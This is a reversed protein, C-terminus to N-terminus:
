NKVEFGISVEATAAATLNITFSGSTPVYNKISATADNTRLGIEIISNATVLSNTVIVTTGGAAINVTGAPKNITQNGTTGAATITADFALKGSRGVSLATSSISSSFEAINGTASAGNNRLIVGTVADNTSSRGISVAAGNTLNVTSAGTGNDQFINGIVINPVLLGPATIYIFTSLAGGSITRGNGFSIGNTSATSNANFNILSTGISNAGATQPFTIRKPALTDASLTGTSTPSISFMANGTGTKTTLAALLNASSPTALWTGIGTGLGSIGTSVPLSTGNTLNISAPTGYANSGTYTKNGAVSQTGYINLFHATDVGTMAGTSSNYSLSTGTASIAARATDYLSGFTNYGTLYKNTTNPFSITSGGGSILSPLGTKITGNTSDILLIKFGSLSNTKQPYQTTIGALTISDAAIQLFNNADLSRNVSLNTLSPSITFSPGAGFNNYSSMLSSTGQVLITGRIGSTAGEFQLANGGTQRIIHLSSLTSGGPTNLVQEWTPTGGAAILQKKMRKDTSDWVLAYQQGTTTAVNEMLVPLGRTRFAFVTTGQQSIINPNPDFMFLSDNSNGTTLNIKPAVQLFSYSKGSLGAFNVASNSNGFLTIGASKPLSNVVHAPSIDLGNTHEFFANATPGNFYLSSQIDTEKLLSIYGGTGAIKISNLGSTGIFQDANNTTGLFSIKPPVVNNGGVLFANSSISPLSITRTSGVITVFGVQIGGTPIDRFVARATDPIGVLTDLDGGATIYIVDYRTYGAAATDINFQTGDEIFGAAGGSVYNVNGINLVAGSLYFSDVSVLGDTLPASELFGYANLTDHSKHLHNGLIYTPAVSDVNIKKNVGGDDIALFKGAGNTALVPLAAISFASGGGSASISVNPYTGMFTINTGPTFRPYKNATDTINLKQAIQAAIAISDQKAKFVTKYITSDISATGKPTFILRGTADTTFVSDNANKYKSFAVSDRLDTKQTIPNYGPKVQALLFCPLVCLIFLIKKM